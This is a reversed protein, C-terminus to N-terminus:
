INGISLPLRITIAMYMITPATKISAVKDNRPSPSGTSSTEHPFNSASDLFALAHHIATKGPPHRM